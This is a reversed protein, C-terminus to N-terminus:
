GRSFDHAELKMSNSKSSCATSATLNEVLIKVDKREALIPFDNLKGLAFDEVRQASHIDREIEYVCM